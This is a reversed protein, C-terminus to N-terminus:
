SFAMKITAHYSSIFCTKLLILHEISAWTMPSDHYNWLLHGDKTSHFINNLDNM